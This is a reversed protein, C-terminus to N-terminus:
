NNKKKKYVCICVQTSLETTQEDFVRRGDFSVIENTQEKARGTSRVRGYALHAVCPIIERWEFRENHIHVVIVVVVVLSHRKERKKGNDVIVFAM